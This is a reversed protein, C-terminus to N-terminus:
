EEYDAHPLMRAGSRQAPLSMSQHEDSTYPKLGRSPSMGTDIRVQVNFESFIQAAGIGIQCKADIRFSWAM